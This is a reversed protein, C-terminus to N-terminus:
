GVVECVPMRWAPLREMEGQRRWERRAPAGRPMVTLRWLGCNLCQWQRQEDNGLSYLGNGASITDDGIFKHQQRTVLKFMSPASHRVNEFILTQPLAAM